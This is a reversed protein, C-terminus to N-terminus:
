PLYYIPTVEFGALTPVPTTMFVWYAEGVIMDKNIDIVTTGWAAVQGQTSPSVVVSCKDKISYLATAVDKQGDEADNTAAIGYGTKDIGFGSGILNWGNSLNLTSLGLTGSYLVPFDVTDTGLIKIYYGRLPVLETASAGINEWGSGAKYQYVIQVNENTIFDGLDMIESMTNASDKLKLPVSLTNWGPELPITSGFYAIGDSVTKAQKETLWPDYTVNSSVSDGLGSGEGGPGGIGGWWNYKADVVEAPVEGTDHWYVVSKVGYENGVINNYHVETGSPTSHDWSIDYAMSEIGVDNNLVDNDRIITGISNGQVSIGADCNEVM